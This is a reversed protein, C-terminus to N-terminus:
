QRRGPFRVFHFLMHRQVLAPKYGAQEANRCGQLPRLPSHSLQPRHHLQWCEESCAVSIFLLAARPQSWHPAACSMSIPHEDAQSQDLVTWLSISLKLLSVLCRQYWIKDVKSFEPDPYKPAESTALSVAQRCAWAEGFWCSSRASLFVM